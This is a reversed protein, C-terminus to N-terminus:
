QNSLAQNGATQILSHQRAANLLRNVITDILSVYDEAEPSGGVSLPAVVVTAGSEKAVREPASNEYYPEKLIIKVGDAKMGGILDAIHGPSPPIGPKPEVQDIVDLGFREAFYTWSKHYTVIKLGRLPRMRGLWGALAPSRHENLYDDLKGSTEMEWLADGGASAVLAPGFAAEDVRKLFDALNADYEAAAAPDLEKMRAAITRAVIRMNLPDLWYHPNGMPHVDGLSLGAAAALQRDPVELPRIGASADLHGPAGILIKANRAGQLILPEYGAELQLGIRIWLDAAHSKLMFSPKAQVVHFNQNSVAISVADVRDGGVERAVSALDPTTTVVNLVAPASRAGRAAAALALLAAARRVVGWIKKM